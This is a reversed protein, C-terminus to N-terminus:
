MGIPFDHWNACPAVAAWDTRLASNNVVRVGYVDHRVKTWTEGVPFSARTLCDGGVHIGIVDNFAPRDGQGPNYPLRFITSLFGYPANETWRSVDPGHCNHFVTQALEPTTAVFMRPRRGYSDVSHMLNLLAAQLAGPTARRGDVVVYLKRDPEGDAGWTPAKEAVQWRGIALREVMEMAM